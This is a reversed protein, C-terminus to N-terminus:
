CDFFFTFKRCRVPEQLNRQPTAVRVEYPYLPAVGRQSFTVALLSRSATGLASASASASLLRKRILRSIDTRRHRGPLSAFTGCFDLWVVDFFGPWSAPMRFHPEGSAHDGSCQSSCSREGCLSALLAHSTQQAANVGEAKMEECQRGDPNPVITTGPTVGTEAACLARLTHLRSTELLLAWAARNLPTATLIHAALAALWANIAQKM